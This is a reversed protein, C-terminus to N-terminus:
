SNPAMFGSEFLVEATLPDIPVEVNADSYTALDGADFGPVASGNGAPTSSPPASRRAAPTSLTSSTSTARESLERYGAMAIPTYAILVTTAGSGNIMRDIAAAVKPNADAWTALAEGCAESQAIMTRGTDPLFATLLAGAFVHQDALARARKAHNSPKGVPRPERPEKPPRGPGRGSSSPQDHRKRPDNRKRTTSSPDPDAPPPAMGPLVEDPPIANKVEDGAVTETTTTSPNRM